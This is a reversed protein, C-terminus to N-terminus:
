TEDLLYLMACMLIIYEAVLMIIYFSTILIWIKWKVPLIQM